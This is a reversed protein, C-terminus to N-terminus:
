KGVCFRRFIADAINVSVSRGDCEGLSSMASEVDTCAVDPTFGSDLANIACEIFYLARELASKQRANVVVADTAYSIKQTIFLEEIVKALSDKGYGNVASVSVTKDFGNPCEFVGQLDSKNMVAIKPASLASIEEIFLLDKEDPPSSSDFVALILEARSLADHSMDIGVKEIEDDSARIGATDVLRLKIKGLVLTEEIRDRTTGEVGSVIARKEGLLMNLVSSKGTNPKGAIVTYVGETIAKGMTYTSLLKKIAEASEKLSLAMEDATMDSLDEDPYDAYAYIGSAVDLLMNYIRDIEKSFVGNRHSRALLLSDRTEADITNIVSEAQSLSLKGNIFARKSFEGPEAARAGCLFLEKLIEETLFIGGHCFIEASDEGTYSHPARYIAVLCDDIVEGGSYFDGYMMKGAPADLLSIGSRPKFVREVISISEDGSIRIMSVAGKGYPSSIAAITDILM